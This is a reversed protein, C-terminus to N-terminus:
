QGTSDAKIDALVRKRAQELVDLLARRTEIPMDPSYSFGKLEFGRGRFVLLREATRTQATGLSLRIEAVSAGRVCRGILDELRTEIEEATLEGLAERSFKSLVLAHTPKLEGSALADGIRAPADALSLYYQVMREGKKLVSAIESVLYGEEKLKKAKNIRDLESLGDREENELVSIEHAERDSLKARVDAWVHSDKTKGQEVAFAIADCRGFGSVIEYPPAMGRVIVPVQQGQLLLSEQLRALNRSMRYQFRRNSLDIASLPVRRLMRTPGQTTEPAPVTQTTDVPAPAPDRSPLTEVSSADLAARVYIAAPNGQPRDLSELVARRDDDAVLMRPALGRKKDPKSM